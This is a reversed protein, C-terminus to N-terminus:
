RCWRVCFECITSFAWSAGCDGQDRVPSILGQWKERSDFMNPLSDVTPALIGHMNQVASDPYMTGLRYKLGDQLTRGWFM